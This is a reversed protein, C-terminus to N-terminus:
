PAVTNEEDDAPTEDSAPAAPEFAQPAEVLVVKNILAKAKKDPLPIVTGVPVEVKQGTEPHSVWIGRKTVKYDKM